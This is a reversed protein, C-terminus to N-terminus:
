NRRGVQVARLFSVANGVPSKANAEFTTIFTALPEDAPDAFDTGPLMDIVTWDAGPISIHYIDGTVDDTYFVRLASERNAQNDTPVVHSKADVAQVFHERSQNCETITLIGAGLAELSAIVADFNAGGAAVDPVNLEVTSIENSRDRYSWSAKAM